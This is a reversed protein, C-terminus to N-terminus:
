VFGCEAPVQPELTRHATEFDEEQIDLLALYDCAVGAGAEGCGWEPHLTNWFRCHDPKRGCGAKPFLSKKYDEIYGFGYRVMNKRGGSSLEVQRGALWASGSEVKLEGATSAARNGPLIHGDPHIFGVVEGPGRSFSVDRLERARVERVASARDGRTRGPVPHNGAGGEPEEGIIIRDIMQRDFESGTCYPQWGDKREPYGSPGSRGAHDEPRTDIWVISIGKEKLRIVLRKMYETEKQTYDRAIGDLILVKMGACFARCIEITHREMLSLSAVPAQLRCDVGLAKLTERMRIIGAQGSLGCLGTEAAPM